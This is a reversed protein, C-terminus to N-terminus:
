IEPAHFHAPSFYALRHEDRRQCQYGNARRKQRRKQGIRGMALQQSGSPAKSALEEAPGSHNHAHVALESKIQTPSCGLFKVPGRAEAFGSSGSRFCKSIGRSQRSM